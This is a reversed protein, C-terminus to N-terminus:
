ADSAIRAVYKAVTEGKGAFKCVRRCLELFENFSLDNKADNTRWACVKFDAPGTGDGVHDVSPLLAFLAKYKRRKAKAEANNYTCILSWDLREGTYSDFEGGGSAARHIALRYLEASALRNGRTRDRKVHRKAARRLWREYKEQDCIGNLFAPRAYKRV